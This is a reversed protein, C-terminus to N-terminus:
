PIAFRACSGIRQCDVSFSPTAFTLVLLALNTVLNGNGCGELCAASASVNWSKGVEKILTSLIDSSPFIEMKELSPTVTCLSSSTSIVHLSLGSRMPLRLSRPLYQMGSICCRPRHCGLFGVLFDLFARQWTMMM